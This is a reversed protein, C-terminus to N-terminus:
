GMLCVYVPSIISSCTSVYLTNRGGFALGDVAQIEVDKLLSPMKGKLPDYIFGDNTSPEPEIEVLGLGSGFTTLGPAISGGKLDIIMVSTFSKLNCSAVTGICQIAGAQVTVVSPPASQSDLSSRIVGAADKQVVEHVNVFAVSGSLKKGELPPLGDFDVAQKAEQNWDPTKPVEQLLEPKALIFSDKLQPIGDIYVQKPTAGLSLPHSDWVAVDADYGARLYGIRHGM